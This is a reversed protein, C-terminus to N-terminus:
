DSAVKLLAQAFDRAEEPTFEVVLRDLIRVEVFRETRKASLDIRWAYQPATGSLEIRAGDPSSRMIHSRDPTDFQSM